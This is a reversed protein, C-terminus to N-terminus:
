VTLGGPPRLIRYANIAALVSFATAGYLAPVLLGDAWYTGSDRLILAALPITCLCLAALGVREFRELGSKNIPRWLLLVCVLSIVCFFLAGVAPTPEGPGALAAVDDLTPQAVAGVVLVGGLTTLAAITSITRYALMM